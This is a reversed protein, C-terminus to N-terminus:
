VDRRHLLTAALAILGIVWVVFVLAGAGPTLLDVGSGFGPGFGSGASPDVLTFSQGAADPLYPMIANGWSDPLVLGLLGPVVLLGAFLTAIGGASSRLLSGLALGMLTVGVLYAVNGWLARTVGPDALAATPGNGELIAQALFFAAFVSATMLVASVVVLVLAKAWLVPLRQPVASMTTRIMGSSHEGSMFLVGLSGLILMALSTGAMAISTPDITLLPMQGAPGAGNTEPTIDGSVVGAAMAAFGVVVVCAAALTIVTSRLTRLKLWEAGIVRWQSVKADPFRAVRDHTPAVVSTSM